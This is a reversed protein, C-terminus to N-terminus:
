LYHMCKNQRSPHRTVLNLYGESLKLWVLAKLCSKKEKIQCDTIQKESNLSSIFISQLNITM